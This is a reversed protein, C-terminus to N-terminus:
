DFEVKPLEVVGSSDRDTTEEEPVGEAPAHTDAPLSVDSDTDTPPADDPPPIEHSDDTLSGFSDEPISDTPSSSAAHSDQEPDSDSPQKSENTVSTAQTEDPASSPECGTLWVALALLGLLSAASIRKILLMRTVPSGGISM